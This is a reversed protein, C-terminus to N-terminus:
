RARRTAERRSWTSIARRREPEVVGGLVSLFHATAVDEDFDALVRARGSEVLRERLHSDSWVVSIAHALAEPRAPAVLLADQGDRLIEPVAGVRTAVVPRGAALAELAVRGLGEAVRAPNVVIDAAAYVSAVPDVFGAFTVVDSVGLEETLRELEGRYARDARRDLTAGAVVCRVRPFVSRLSPLARILDAQGRGRAINGVVALCPEADQVGFRRRATERDAVLEAVRVGPSITRVSGNYQRAVADSCCVIETAFMNTLRQTAATAAAKTPRRLRAEEHIEAAYVIVPMGVVRAAVLLAPLVATVSLVADPNRDRLLAAFTRVDRVFGAGIRLADWPSGPLVAASYPVIHTPAISSYLGEATGPAPVVVDVSM